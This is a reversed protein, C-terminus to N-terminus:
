AHFSPAHVVEVGNEGEAQPTSRKSWNERMSSHTILVLCPIGLIIDDMDQIVEKKNGLEWPRVAECSEISLWLKRIHNNRM